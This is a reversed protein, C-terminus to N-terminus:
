SKLREGDLEVILARVTEPIPAKRAENYDYSVVISSGESAVADQSASLARYETMFRDEHLEITRAGVLITDPYFLQRRFRCSTSHLIPGIRTEEYSREFGCRELYVIRASEFYRFVLTNNVHGFADMDAWRVAVEVVVPFDDLLASVRYGM